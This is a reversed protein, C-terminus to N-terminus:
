PGMTGHGPRSAVRPRQTTETAPICTLDREHGDVDAAVVDDAALGRFWWEGRVGCQTVFASEVM